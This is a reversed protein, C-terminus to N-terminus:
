PKHAYHNACDATLRHTTPEFGVRAAMHAPMDYLTRLRLYANGHSSNVRSIFITLELDSSGSLAQRRYPLLFADANIRIAFFGFRLNTLRLAKKIRTCIIRGDLALPYFKHVPLKLPRLM